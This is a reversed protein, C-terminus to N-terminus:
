VNLLYSIKIKIVIPIKKWITKKLFESMSRFYKQIVM